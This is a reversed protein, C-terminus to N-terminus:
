RRLDLCRLKSEDRVYLRGNALVPMTWCRERSIQTSAVERYEDPTAEALALMGHEGLIILHNDAIMLSGKEFGSHRWKMTGTRFELCTLIADNFGYVHDKWFVSSSFHNRMRTNAYVQNATLKGDRKEIKVVACGKGYGSSIFIYDNVVIPTAVNCGYNTEWDFRWLLQGDDPMVGVLGRETFFVIQEVGALTVHVPSSYGATDDLNQWALKGNRKHFAALSGGRPGGPMTYVLDGVVLPSFSVGWRLNAAGFKTLLDHKWVVEGKATDPEVKLCHMIGTGGVTYVVAGDVTPSARPGNGFDEDFRAPYRFRWIENGSDADWCVVAEDKPSQPDQVILFVRNGAVSPASFGEGTPQEWLIAPGKTPWATLLNKELSIGDRNPGRWQPWDFGVPTPQINLLATQLEQLRQPDEQVRNSLYYRYLLVGLFLSLVGLAAPLLIRGSHRQLRALM